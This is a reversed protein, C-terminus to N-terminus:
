LHLMLVDRYSAHISLAGAACLPAILGVIALATIRLELLSYTLM